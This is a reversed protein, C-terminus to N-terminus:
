GAWSWAGGEPDSRGSLEGLERMTPGISAWATPPLAQTLLHAVLTGLSHGPEAAFCRDLACWALAGEGELWAAFALVAAASAVLEVPARRVLDRWLEVHRTASEPTLPVWAADRVAGVQISVLMSAAEQESPTTGGEAHRRCLEALETAGFMAAEDLATAVAAIARADAALGAALEERSSLTVHGAMVAQARFPHGGSDYPVGRAPVGPRRGDASYWRGADARLCEVVEIGDREFERRLRRAIQRCHVAGPGYLVFVVRTARHRRCPDLLAAVVATLATPDGRPPLDIRAHLPTGGGFTLMVISDSPEFGLTVPIVALLDEPSKARFTLTM